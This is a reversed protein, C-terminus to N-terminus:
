KETVVCENISSIKGDNRIYFRGLDRWTGNEIKRRALLLNKGLFLEGTIIPNNMYKYKAAGNKFLEYKFSGDGDSCKLVADRLLRHKKLEEVRVIQSDFIWGKISNNVGGDDYMETDVFIWRGKKNNVLEIKDAYKIVKLAETIRINMLVRSSISPNDFLRVNDEAIYIYEGFVTITQLLLCIISAMMVKKM